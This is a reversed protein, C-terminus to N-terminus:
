EKEAPSAAPKEKKKSTAEGASASASAKSKVKAPAAKTPKATAPEVFKTTPEAAKNKSDLFENFKAQREPTMPAKPKATNYLHPYANPTRHYAPAKFASSYDMRTVSTPEYFIM